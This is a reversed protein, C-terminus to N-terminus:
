ISSAFREAAYLQYTGGARYNGEWKFSSGRFGAGDVQDTSDCSILALNELASNANLSVVRHLRILQCRSIITDLLKGIHNTMLIAIIGPVPEELFKLLSNSAQKNMKDCDKIIYIRDNVKLFPVSIIVSGSGM